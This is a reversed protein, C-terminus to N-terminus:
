QNLARVIYTDSEDDKSVVLIPDGKQLPAEHASIRARLVLTRGSTEVEVQGFETDIKGSRVFGSSGIITVAEESTRLMKMLPRMPIVLLRTLVFSGIVVPILLLSAQGTEFGPNFYHNLLVNSAWLLLSFLSIVFMLPADSVGVIHLVTQSFGGSASGAGDDSGAGEGAVDIEGASADVDLDLDVDLDPGADLGEVANAGNAGDLDVLGLLGIVWYLAVCGLLITFPLNVPLLSEQFLELMATSRNVALMSPALGLLCASFM